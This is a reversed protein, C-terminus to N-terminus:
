YFQIYLRSVHEYVNILVDKPLKFQYLQQIVQSWRGHRIHSLLEKKSENTMPNFGIGTEDQLLHAVNSLNEDHLFQIILRIVDDSPISKAWQEKM